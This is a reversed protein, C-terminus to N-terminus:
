RKRKNATNKGAEALMGLAKQKEGSRQGGWGHIVEGPKAAKGPARKKKEAKM